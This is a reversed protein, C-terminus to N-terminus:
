NHNTDRLTARIRALLEAMAFPKTLYDNAGIDLGNVKDSVDDKATLMIIPVNSSLRVRRCIEMGDLEPLMVDLLVLDFKEKLIRDLALRGNSETSTDFGEHRLELQVFRAIRAEDEVILIKLKGLM